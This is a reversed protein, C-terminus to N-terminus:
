YKLVRLFYEHKMSKDIAKGYGVYNDECIRYSRFPKALEAIEERQFKHLFPIESCYNSEVRPFVILAKGGIKLSKHIINM